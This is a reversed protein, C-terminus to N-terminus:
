VSTCSLMRVQSTSVVYHAGVFVADWIRARHGFSSWVLPVTAESGVMCGTVNWMRVTRDDGGSVVHTCDASWSTSYVAGSHGRLTCLVPAFADTTGAEWILVQM